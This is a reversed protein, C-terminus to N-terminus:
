KQKKKISHHLPSFQSFPGPFVAIVFILVFFVLMAHETTLNLVASVQRRTAGSSTKPNGKFQRHLAGEACEEPRVDSEIGENLAIPDECSDDSDTFYMTRKELDSLRVSDLAGQEATQHVLFDKAERVNM